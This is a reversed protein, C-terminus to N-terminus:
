AAKRLTEKKHGRLDEMNLYRPSGALGGYTEVALARSPSVHGVM